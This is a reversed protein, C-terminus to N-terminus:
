LLSILDMILTDFIKIINKVFIKTDIYNYYFEIKVIDHICNFWAFTFSLLNYSPYNLIAVFVFICILVWLFCVAVLLEFVLLSSLYGIKNDTIIFEFLCYSIGSIIIIIIIYVM